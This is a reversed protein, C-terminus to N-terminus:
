AAGLWKTTPQLVKLALATSLSPSDGAPRVPGRRGLRPRLLLGLALLLPVSLYLPQHNHNEFTSTLRDLYYKEPFWLTRHSGTAQPSWASPRM